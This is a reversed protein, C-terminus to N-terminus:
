QGVAQILALFSSKREEFSSPPTKFNKELIPLCYATFKSQTRLTFTYKRGYFGEGIKEGLAGATDLSKVLRRLIDDKDSARFLHIDVVRKQRALDRVVGYLASTQCYAVGDVTVGVWDEKKGKTANGYNILPDLLELFEPVKFWDDWRKIEMSQSTRAVEEERARGDAEKLLSAFGDRVHRHHAGIVDCVEDLWFVDHGQFAEKVKVISVAPHDRMSYIGSARFAPIKGLDHGLCAVLMKPVLPEADKYNQALLAMGHRAVRHTHDKLTVQGLTDRISYLDVCEEDSTKAELVVSPCDGYTELMEIIKLLPVLVGQTQLLGQHPLIYDRVFASSAPMNPMASQEVSPVSGGAAPLMLESKRATAPPAYAQAMSMEQTSGIRTGNDSLPRFDDNHRLWVPALDELRIEIGSQLPVIRRRLSGMFKRPWRVLAWGDLGGFM